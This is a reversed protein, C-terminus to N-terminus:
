KREPRHLVEEALFSKLFSFPDFFLNNQIKSRFRDLSIVKITSCRKM